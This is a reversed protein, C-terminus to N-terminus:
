LRDLARQRASRAREVDIEPQREASDALIVTRRPGVEMFGGGIAFVVEKGDPERLRLEGAGLQELLPAHNALIGIYGDWAMAKIYTVAHSYVTRVPTVVDVQFTREAMTLGGGAAAPRKGRGDRDDRGHLFRGGASRRADRARDPLLGPDHGRP